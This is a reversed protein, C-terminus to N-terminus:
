PLDSLIFDSAKAQKPNKLKTVVIRASPTSDDFGVMNYIKNPNNHKECLDSYEYELRDYTVDSIKTLHTWSNHIMDPHYYAFKLELLQWGLLMLREETPTLKEPNM